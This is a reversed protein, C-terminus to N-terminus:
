AHDLLVDKASYDRGNRLDPREPCVNGSVVTLSNGTACAKTATLPAAGTKSFAVPAALCGMLVALSVARYCNDLTKM